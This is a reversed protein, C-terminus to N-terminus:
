NIAYKEGTHTVPELDGVCFSGGLGKPEIETGSYHTLKVARIWIPRDYNYLYDGWGEFVDGIPVSKFPVESPM